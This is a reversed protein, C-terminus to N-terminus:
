PFEWTERGDGDWGPKVDSKPWCVVRYAVWKAINLLSGSPDDAVMHEWKGLEYGHTNAWNTITDRLQRVEDMNSTVMAYGGIRKACAVYTFPEGYRVGKCLTPETLDNM